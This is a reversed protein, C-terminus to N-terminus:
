GTKDKSHWDFTPYNAPNIHDRIYGEIDEVDDPIDIETCGSLVDFTKGDSLVVYRTFTNINHSHKTTNPM